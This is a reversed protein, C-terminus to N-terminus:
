NNTGEGFKELFSYAFRFKPSLYLAPLNCESSYQQASEFDGFFTLVLFDHYSATMVIAVGSSSINLMKGKHFVEIRLFDRCIRIAKLDSKWYGDLCTTALLKAVGEKM